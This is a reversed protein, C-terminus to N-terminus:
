FDSTSSCMVYGSYLVFLPDEECCREAGIVETRNAVM